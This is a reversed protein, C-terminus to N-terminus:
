AQRSLLSELMNMQASWQYNKIAWDRGKQGLGKRKEEDKLLGIIETAFDDPDDSVILHQDAENHSVFVSHYFAEAIKLEYKPLLKGKAHRYCLCEM